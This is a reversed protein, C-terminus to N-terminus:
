RDSKLNKRNRRRVSRERCENCIILISTPAFFRLWLPRRMRCTDSSGCKPCSRAYTSMAVQKEDHANSNHLLRRELTQATDSPRMRSGTGPFGGESRHQFQEVVWKAQGLQNPQDELDSRQQWSELRMLEVDAQALLENAEAMWNVVSETRVFNLSARCARIRERLEKSM